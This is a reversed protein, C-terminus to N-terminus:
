SFYQEICEQEFRSLRVLLDSWYRRHEFSLRRKESLQRRYWIRRKGIERFLEEVTMARNDNTHFFNDNMPVRDAM